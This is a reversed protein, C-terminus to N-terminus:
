EKFATENNLTKFNKQKYIIFTKNTFQLFVVQLIMEFSQYTLCGFTAKM